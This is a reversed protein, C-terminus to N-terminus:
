AGAGELTGTTQTRPDYVECLIERDGQPWSNRQTLLLQVQARVRQIRDRRVRRVREVCGRRGARQDREQGPYPGDALEFEAYAESDHPESCPVVPVSTVIGSLDADNMCDGVQSIEAAM